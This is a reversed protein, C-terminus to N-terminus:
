SIQDDESQNWVLRGAYLENQIIDAGRQMNGIITSANTGHVDAHRRYAKMTRIAHTNGAVFDM